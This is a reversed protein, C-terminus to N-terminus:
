YARQADVKKKGSSLVGWSGSEGGRGEHLLSEQPGNGLLFSDKGAQGGLNREWRPRAGM